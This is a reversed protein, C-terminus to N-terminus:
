RPAFQTAGFLISRQEETLPAQAARDALVQLGRVVAPRAAIEDLWRKV